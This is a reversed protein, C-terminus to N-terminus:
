NYHQVQKLMEGIEKVLSKINPIIDATLQNSGKLSDNSANEINLCINAINNYGMVQSQSKLSHSAIHLNNLAEKNSVDTSLENLSTHMKKIYERATKIYISKYSGLDIPEM